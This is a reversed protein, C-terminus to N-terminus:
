LGEATSRVFFGLNCVLLLVTWGGWIVAWAGHSEYAIGAFVPALAACFLSVKISKGM